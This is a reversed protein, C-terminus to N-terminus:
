MAEEDFDKKSRAPLKDDTAVPFEWTLKGTCYSLPKILKLQEVMWQSFSCSAYYNEYFTGMKILKRFQFAVTRM